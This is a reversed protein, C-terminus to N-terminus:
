VGGSPVCKPAGLPLLLSSLKEKYIEMNRVGWTRPVLYQSQQDEKVHRSRESSALKRHHCRPVLTSSCVGPRAGSGDAHAGRLDEM